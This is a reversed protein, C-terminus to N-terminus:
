VSVIINVNNIFVAITIFFMHELLDCQYSVRLTCLPLLFSFVTVVSLLLVVALLCVFTFGVGCM